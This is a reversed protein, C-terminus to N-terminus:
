HMYVLLHFYEYRQIYFLDCNYYVMASARVQAYEMQSMTRLNVQVIVDEESVYLLENESDLAIAYIQSFAGFHRLQFLDLQTIISHIPFFSVTRGDMGAIKVMSSSGDYQIWFMSGRRPHLILDRFRQEHSTAEVLPMCNNADKDCVGIGFGDEAYYINGTLPDVAIHGFHESDHSAFEHVKGDGKIAQIHNSARKTVFLLEGIDRKYALSTIFSKDAVNEM